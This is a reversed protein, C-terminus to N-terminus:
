IGSLWITNVNTKRGSGPSLSSVLLALLALVILLKKKILM